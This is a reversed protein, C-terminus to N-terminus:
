PNTVASILHLSLSIRAPFAMRMMVPGGPLSQPIPLFEIGARGGARILRSIVAAGIWALMPSPPGLAAFYAQTAAPPILKSGAM